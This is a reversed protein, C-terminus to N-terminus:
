SLSPHRYWFPHVKPFTAFPGGRMAENESFNILFGQRFAWFRCCIKKPTFIVVVGKPVKKFIWRKPITVRGSSHPRVPVSILSLTGLFIHFKKICPTGSFFRQYFKEEVVEWRVHVVSWSCVKDGSVQDSALPRGAVKKLSHGPRWPHKVTWSFTPRYDVDTPFDDLFIKILSKKRPCGTSKLRQKDNSHQLM